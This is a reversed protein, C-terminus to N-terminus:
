IGLEKVFSDFTDYAKNKENNEIKDIIKDRLLLHSSYKGEPIFEHLFGRSTKSIVDKKQGNPYYTIVLGDKPIKINNKIINQIEKQIDVM